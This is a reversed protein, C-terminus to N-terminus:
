SKQIFGDGYFNKAILELNEPHVFEKYREDQLEIMDRVMNGSLFPFNQTIRSCIEVHSIDNTFFLYERKDGVYIVDPMPRNPLERKITELVHCNWPINTVDKVPIIQLRAYGEQHRWVNQIMKKRTFYPLPNSYTGSEQAAGILVTGMECESMMQRILRDHGIHFPQCRLICFGHKYKFTMFFGKKRFAM